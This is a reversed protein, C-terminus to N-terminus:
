PQFTHEEAHWELRTRSVSTTGPKREERMWMTSTDSGRRGRTPLTISGSSTLALVPSDPGCVTWQMGPSMTVTEM